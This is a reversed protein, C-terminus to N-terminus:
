PNINGFPNISPPTYAANKKKAIQENALTRSYQTLKPDGLNVDEPKPGYNLADPKWTANISPMGEPKVEGRVPKLPVPTEFAPIPQEQGVVVSRGVASRMEPNYYNWASLNGALYRSMTVPHVEHGRGAAIADRVYDAHTKISTVHPVLASISGADEFANVYFKAKRTQDNFWGIDTDAVAPTGAPPLANPKIVGAIMTKKGFLNHQAQAKVHTFGEKPVADVFDTRDIAARMSGFHIDKHTQNNWYRDSFDTDRPQAHADTPHQPDKVERNTSHFFVGPSALFEEPSM